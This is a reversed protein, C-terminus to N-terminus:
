SIHFFKRKKREKKETWSFTHKKPKFVNRSIYLVDKTTWGLLRRLLILSEDFLESVLVLDMKANLDHLFENIMMVNHKSAEFNTLPFGFDVSM